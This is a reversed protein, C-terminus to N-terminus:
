DVRVERGVGRGIWREGKMWDRGVGWWGSREESRDEKKARGEGKKARGEGSGRGM